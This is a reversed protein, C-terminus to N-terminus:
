NLYGGKITFMYYDKILKDKVDNNYKRYEEASRFLNVAKRYQTLIYKDTAVGYLMVNKSSIEVPMDINGGLNWKKFIISEDNMYSCMLVKNIIFRLRNKELCDAILYEGNIM